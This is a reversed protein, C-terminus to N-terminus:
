LELVKQLHVLVRGAGAVVFLHFLIIHTYSVLVCVQMLKHIHSSMLESPPKGMLPELDEVSNADHAKHTALGTEEWFSAISVKSMAKAKSGGELFVIPELSSTPLTTRRDQFKAVSSTVM